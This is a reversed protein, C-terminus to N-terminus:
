SVLPTSGAGASLNSACRRSMQSIPNSFTKGAGKGSMKVANTVAGM